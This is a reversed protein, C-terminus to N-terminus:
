ALRMLRQLTSFREHSRFSDFLPSVNLFSLLYSGERAAREFWDFAADIDGLGGHVIGVADAPAEERANRLTIDQLIGRGEDVRGSLALARGLVGRAIPNGGSFDDARQLAVVARPVDGLQDYAMGLVWHALWFQSDMEIVSLEQEVAEAHRRALLLMHGVGMRWSVHV